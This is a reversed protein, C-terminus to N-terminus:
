KKKVSLSSLDLTELQDILDSHKFEAPTNHFAELLATKAKDSGTFYLQVQNALCQAEFANVVDKNYEGQMLVIGREDKLDTYHVITLCEPANEKYAQYNILPTFHIEHGAFQAVIFEYGMDRPLPFLFIPYKRANEYLKDYTGAPMVGSVTDKHRFHESWIYELVENSKDKLLETKLIAELKKQPAHTYASKPLPEKAKPAVESFGHGGPQSEKIKKGEAFKSLFEEPAAKQYKAIKEAYKEFYPNKELEEIARVMAYSSTSVPRSNMTIWLRRAVLCLHNRTVNM